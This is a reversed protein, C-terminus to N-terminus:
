TVYRQVLQLPLHDHSNVGPHYGADRAIVDRVVRVLRPCLQVYPLHSSPFSLPPFHSFILSFLFLSYVSSSAASAQELIVYRCNGMRPTRTPGIRCGGEERGKVRRGKVRRRRGEERTPQDGHGLGAHCAQQQEGHHGYGHPALSARAPVVNGVPRLPGGLRPPRLPPLPLCLHSTTVLHHTVDGTM